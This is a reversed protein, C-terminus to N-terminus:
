RQSTKKDDDFPIKLVNKYAAVDRIDKGTKKLLQRVAEQLQADEQPDGLARVGPYVAGRLDSVADRVEYRLWRRVDDKPLRTDLGQYFADFDPYRSADGDDGEALQKFLDPQQPLHKRVYDKFVDKKLLAFLPANKWADEPKSEVAEIKHDPIVGWGPDAIKGNKDFERHTCRGSPLYYKAVTLKIHAGVDYKKNGNRDEYPEGEEWVGDDNLDTFPEAPDSALPMMNQVTGKGFTREGVIVARGLDQLAGAVIESASASFNNTLVALPLNCIANDRTSYDRRKESPGQTYVVLKKGEVFKEVVERAQTLFGGTNNRVDLVIAVAGHQMVDRLAADLEGATNTSFNVLELYGVDGPLMTHSVAPVHIEKRVISLTQPEQWGRRFVKLTVTTDPRGKLRAIIEDSTHGETEWGDVEIIKDGSLLGARYAPGSYIPRIVSFVNEQDFNVFAGIGGYERNLDFFFKQFEDSTFYTSHPDLGLLMGKAAYEILEDDKVKSGDIHSAHVRQRLETLVRYEDNAGAAPEGPKNKAEVLKSLMDEFQRREEERKLYLRARRGLDNPQLQVDRLISWADGNAVNLEALTLAGRTRLEPDTSRLFQELTSKSTGRQESSGVRWLALAAEIRVTPAVLEDNCNQELVKRVNKLIQANFFREEGLLALAAARVANDQSQAVPQLLELIDKGGTTDPVLGQIAVAACLRGKDGVTKASAVIAALLADNQKDDPRDSLQLALDFVRELPAADAQALVTAAKGALDQQAIAAAPFSLLGLTLLLAPTAHARM